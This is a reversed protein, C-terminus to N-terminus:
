DISIKETKVLMQNLRQLPLVVNDHFSQQVRADELSLRSAGSTSLSGTVCRWVVEAYEDHEREKIVEQNVLRTAICFETLGSIGAVEPDGKDRLSLIPVGFSIEILAVGLAFITEDAICACAQLRPQDKADTSEQGSDNASFLRKTVYAQKIPTSAKNGRIFHIDDLCWNKRLWPTAQLHLM